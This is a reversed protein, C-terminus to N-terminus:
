RANNVSRHLCKVRVEEAIDEGHLSTGARHLTSVVDYCGRRFDIFVKELQSRVQYRDECSSIPRKIRLDGPM